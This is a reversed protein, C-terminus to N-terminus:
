AELVLNRVLIIIDRPFYREWTVMPRIALGSYRQYDFKEDRAYITVLRTASVNHLGFFTLVTQYLAKSGLVNFHFEIFPGERVVLGNGSYEERTYQLGTSSPQPTIVVLSALPVNIGEKVRYDSM